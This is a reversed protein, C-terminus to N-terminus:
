KQPAFWPLMFMVMPTSYGTGLAIAERTRRRTPNNVVVM